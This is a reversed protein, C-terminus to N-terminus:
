LLTSDLNEHTLNENQPERFRFYRFIFGLLFKGSHPIQFVSNLLTPVLRMTWELRVTYQSQATSYDLLYIVFM